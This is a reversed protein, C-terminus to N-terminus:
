IKLFSIRSKTNSFNYFTNETVTTTYKETKNTIRTQLKLDAIVNKYFSLKKGKFTADFQTKTYM